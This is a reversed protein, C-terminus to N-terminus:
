ALDQWLSIVLERAQKNDRGVAPDTILVVTAVTLVADTLRDLARAIMEVDDHTM